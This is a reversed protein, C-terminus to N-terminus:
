WMGIRAKRALLAWVVPVAVRVLHLLVLEADELDGQRSLIALRCDRMIGLDLDGEDYGVIVGSLLTNGSPNCSDCLIKVDRGDVIGAEPIRGLVLAVGELVGLGRLGLTCTDVFGM